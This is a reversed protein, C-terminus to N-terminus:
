REGDEWDHRGLHLRMVAQVEDDPVCATLRGCDCRVYWDGLRTRRVEFRSSPLGFPLSFEDHDVLRDCSQDHRDLALVADARDAYGGASWGCECSSGWYGDTRFLTTSRVM